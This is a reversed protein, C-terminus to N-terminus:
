VIQRPNGVAKSRATEPSGLGLVLGESDRGAMRPGCPCLEAFFSRVNGRGSTLHRSTALPIQYQKNARLKTGPVFM